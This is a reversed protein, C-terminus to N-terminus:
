SFTYHRIQNLQSTTDSRRESLIQVCTKLRSRIVWLLGVYVNGIDVAVQM